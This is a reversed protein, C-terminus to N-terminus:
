KAKQLGVEQTYTYILYYGGGGWMLNLIPLSREGIPQNHSDQISQTLIKKCKVNVKIITYIKEITDKGDSM